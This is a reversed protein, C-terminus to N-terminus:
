TKMGQEDASRQVWNRWLEADFGGAELAVAKTFARLSAKIAVKGDLKGTM